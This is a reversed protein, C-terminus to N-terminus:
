VGRGDFDPTYDRSASSHDQVYGEEFGLEEFWRRVDEYEDPALRRDMGPLEAARHVPYYQSM